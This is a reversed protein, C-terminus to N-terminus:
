VNVRTESLLVAIYEVLTGVTSFPSIEQSLARDDALVLSVGFSNQIADETAVIFNILGLSDLASKGGFLPTALSNPLENRNQNERNYQDIVGFVSERIKDKM